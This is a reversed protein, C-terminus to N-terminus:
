DYQSMVTMFQDPTLLMKAGDIDSHDLLMYINHHNLETWWTRTDPEDIMVLGTFTDKGNRKRWLMRKSINESGGCCACPPSFSRENDTM